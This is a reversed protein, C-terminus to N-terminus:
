SAELERETPAAKAEDLTLVRGRRVACALGYCPYDAFCAVTWEDRQWLRELGADVTGAAVRGRLEAALGEDAWAPLANLYSHLVHHTFEHYITEWNQSESTGGSLALPNFDSQLYFGAARSNPSRSQFPTLKDFLDKSKPIIIYHTRFARPSEGRDIKLETAIIEKLKGFREIAESTM